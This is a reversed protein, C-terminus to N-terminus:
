NNKKIIVSDEELVKNLNEQNLFYIKLDNSGGHHSKLQFYKTKYKLYKQQFDM